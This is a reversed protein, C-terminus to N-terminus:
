AEDDEQVEGAADGGGDTANGRQGGDLGDASTGAPRVPAARRSVRVRAARLVRGGREYGPREVDLVTGEAVQPDIVAGTAQMRKPDFPLGLCDIEHVDQEELLADLRELTLELGRVFASFVAEQAAEEKAAVPAPGAFVARLRRFLGGVSWEGPSDDRRPPGDDPRQGNWGAVAELRRRAESHARALRDRLDILGGLIPATADARLQRERTAHDERLRTVERRLEDLARAQEGVAQVLVVQGRRQAAVEGAAATLARVAEVLDVGPDLADAPLGEPAPEAETIGDLVAAVAALIETRREQWPPTTM